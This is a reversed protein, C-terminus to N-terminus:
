CGTEFRGVRKQEDRERKKRGWERVEAEKDRCKDSCTAEVEEEDHPPKCARGWIEADVCLTAPRTSTHLCMPCKRTIQICM